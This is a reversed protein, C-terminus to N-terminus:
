NYKRLAFYLFVLGMTFYTGVLIANSNKTDPFFSVYLAATMLVGTFFLSAKKLTPKKQEKMLLYAGLAIVVIGLVSSSVIAFVITIFFMKVLMSSENSKASYVVPDKRTQREMKLAVVSSFVLLGLGFWLSSWEDTQPLQMVFPMSIKEGFIGREVALRGLFLLGLIFLASSLILKENLVTSKTNKLYPLWHKILTAAVWISAAAVFSFLIFFPLYILVFGWSGDGSLGFALLMRM